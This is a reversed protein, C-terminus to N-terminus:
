SKECVYPFLKNTCHMDTWTSGALEIAVCDEGWDNDNPEHTNWYLFLAISGTSQHKYVGETHIDNLDHFIWYKNEKWDDYPPGQFYISLLFDYMSFCFVLRSFNCITHIIHNKDQGEFILLIRCEM